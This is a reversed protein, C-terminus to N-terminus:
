SPTSKADAMNMGYNGKTLYNWNIERDTQREREKQIDKDWKQINLERVRKRNGVLLFGETFKWSKM